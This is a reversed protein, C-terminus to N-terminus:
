RVRDELLGQWLPELRAKDPEGLREAMLLCERQLQRQRQQLENGAMELEFRELPNLETNADLGWFGLAYWAVRLRSLRYQAAEVIEVSAGTRGQQKLMTGLQQAQQMRQDIQALQLSQVPHAQAPETPLTEGATRAVSCILSSWQPDFEGPVVRLAFSARTLPAVPARAQIGL